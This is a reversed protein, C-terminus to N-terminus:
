NRLLSGNRGDYNEEYRYAHVLLGLCVVAAWLSDDPIDNADIYPLRSIVDRATGRSLYDPLKTCLTSWVEGPSNVHVLRPNVLPLLSRMPLRLPIPRVFGTNARCIATGGVLPLVECNPM